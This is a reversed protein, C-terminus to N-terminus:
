YGNGIDDLSKLPLITVKFINSIDGIYYIDLVRNTYAKKNKRLYELDNFSLDFYVRKSYGSLNIIVANDEVKNIKAKYKKIKIEEELVKDISSEIPKNISEKISTQETKKVRKNISKTTKSTDTSKKKAV